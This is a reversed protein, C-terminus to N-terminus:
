GLHGVVRERDRERHGVIDIHIQVGVLHDRQSMSGERPDTSQMFGARRNLILDPRDARHSLWERCFGVLRLAGRNQRDVNGLEKVDLHYIASGIKSPTMSSINAGPACMPM